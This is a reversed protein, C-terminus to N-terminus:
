VHARGIEGRSIYFEKQSKSLAYIFDIKNLSFSHIFNIFFRESSISLEGHHLTLHFENKYKPLLIFFILSRPNSFNFHFLNNFFGFFGFFCNFFFQFLNKQFFVHGSFSIPIKKESEPYIDIVSDVLNAGALRYIFSTVGGIPKPLGGVVFIKNIM